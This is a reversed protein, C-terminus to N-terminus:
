KPRPDEPKGKPNQEASKRKAQINAPKGRSNRVTSKRERKVWTEEPKGRPNQEASERKPRTDDPKGKPNQRAYKRKEHTNDIGLTLGNTQWSALQAEEIEIESLPMKTFDLAQSLEGDTALLFGRTPANEKRVLLPRADQPFVNWSIAVAYTTLVLFPLIHM